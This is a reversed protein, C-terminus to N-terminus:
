PPLFSFDLYPPNLPNTGRGIPGSCALPTLLFLPSELPIAKEGGKEFPSVPPNEEEAFL